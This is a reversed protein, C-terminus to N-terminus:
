ARGEWLDYALVGHLYLHTCLIYSTWGHNRLTMVWLRWPKDTGSSISAKTTMTKKTTRRM